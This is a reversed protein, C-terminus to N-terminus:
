HLFFFNCVVFVSIGSYAMIRRALFKCSALEFVYRLLVTLARERERKRKGICSKIVSM